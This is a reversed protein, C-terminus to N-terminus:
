EPITVSVNCTREIDRQLLMNFLQQVSAILTEKLQGAATTMYCCLGSSGWWKWHWCLTISSLLCPVSTVSYDFFYLVLFPPLIWLPRSEIITHIHYINRVV